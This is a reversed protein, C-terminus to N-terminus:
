DIATSEPRGRSERRLPVDPIKRSTKGLKVPKAVEVVAIGERPDVCFLRTNAVEANRERDSTDVRRRRPCPLDGASTDAVLIRDTEVAEAPPRTQSGPQVKPSSGTETKLDRCGESSGKPSAMASPPMNVMGGTALCLEIDQYTLQAQEM